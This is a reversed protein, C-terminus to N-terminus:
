WKWDPRRMTELTQKVTFGRLAARSLAASRDSWIKQAAPTPIGQKGHPVMQGVLLSLYGEIGFSNTQRLLVAKGLSRPGNERYFEVVRDAGGIDTDARCAQWFSTDLRDNFVYHVALFDRIDDWSNNSLENYLRVVSPPPDQLSDFLSDAVARAEVCIVQLATAELPEVFGAANGM